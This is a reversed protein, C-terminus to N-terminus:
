LPKCLLVGSSQTELPVTAVPSPGPGDVGLCKQAHNRSWLNERHKKAAMRSDPLSAPESSSSSSLTPPCSAKPRGSEVERVPSIFSRTKKSFSRFVAQTPAPLPHHLEARAVRLGGM